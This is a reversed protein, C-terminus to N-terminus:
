TNSPRVSRNHDLSTDDSRTGFGIEAVQLAGDPQELLARNSCLPNLVVVQTEPVHEGIQVVASAIVLLGTPTELADFLDIGVIDIDTSPEFRQQLRM